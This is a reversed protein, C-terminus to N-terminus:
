AARPQRPRGLASQILLFEGVNDMTLIGVLAGRSTVPLAHCACAQLRALATDLMDAADVVEFERRMVDRVRWDAGRALAKLVDSRLLVGALRGGKGGDVVPFDQQSGALILELVRQAPDDPAVTRFDTLMARSVPIGSLATRMQVMSAEQAAGIWVFLAIFILFPNTFLGLLGFVLAMAQGVHAAVQTARVYDMRLALLARLVRGGDMPFAPLLNFVALSVNVLLLRELFTSGAMSLVSVPRLTHSLLLWVYLAAAIVVNVAPGALSVWVEQRPKDPIRELRSVGGIPLLTIDRTPIGYRRATLAHGLEHLVVCAFLALIFAIGDLAAASGGALWYTIGVWAILLFFTAHVYLDIGAVSGVKWSWKM